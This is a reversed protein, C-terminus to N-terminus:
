CLSLLGDLPVGNGNVAAIHGDPPDANLDHVILYEGKGHLAGVQGGRRCLAVRGGESVVTFIWKGLDLRRLPSTV